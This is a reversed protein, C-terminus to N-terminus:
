KEKITPGLHLAPLIRDILESDLQFFVAGAAGARRIACLQAATKSADLQSEDATVGIGPLLQQPNGAAHAAQELGQTFAAISESYLMPAALDLFGQKLWLPWNQQHEATAAPLPFVAASLTCEPNEQRVVTAADRLFDTLEQERFQLFAKHRSGGNLVDAPWSGVVEGQSREFTQRTIEAYCGQMGPYRIYDLHIGDVGAAAIEQLMNLILRRNQPHSPSLWPLPAGDATKMMRNNQELHTRAAPTLGEVNWVMVWAHFALGQERTQTAIRRLYRMSREQHKGAHGITANSGSRIYGGTAVHEVLLNIGHTALSHLVETRRRSPISRAWVARLEGPAAPTEALLSRADRRRRESQEQQADRLPVLAPDATSMAALLWQVASPTALPPIHSFWFGHEGHAAAPLKADPIGDPTLWVGTTIMSPPRGAVPLLHRTRHPMTDPLGSHSNTFHVTTWDTSQTAYPRVTVNMLDALRDSAQYFLGLKINQRTTLAELQRLQETDLEPFYPLVVWKLQPLLHLDSLDDTLMVPTLGAKQLLNQARKACTAALATAGPASRESAQLIVVEPQFDHLSNLTFLADRDAGKWISIRLMRAAAWDPTGSEAHFAARQFVLKGDPELLPASASLWHGEHQLHLTVARIASVNECAYQLILARATEGPAPIQMDWFLRDSMNSSFPVHLLVGGDPATQAAPANPGATLAEPTLELAFGGNSVTGTLVFTLLWLTRATSVVAQLLKAARPKNGNM